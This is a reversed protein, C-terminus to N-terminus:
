SVLAALGDLNRRWIRALVPRGVFAGLPGGLYWPFHLRETWTFRTGRGEDIPEMTFAGSGSVIGDHRVGITREPEWATIEMHDIVRIPGVATVCWMRTRVGRRLPGDFVISVADAM